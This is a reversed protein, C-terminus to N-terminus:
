LRLNESISLLQSLNDEMYSGKVKESKWRSHRKFLWDKVGNNEAIIAGGSRLSPLGLKKSNLAIKEIVSSMYQRASFYSNKRFKNKSM